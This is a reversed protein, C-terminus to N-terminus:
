RNVMFKGSIGFGSSNIKVMYFGNGLASTNLSIQQDGGNLQRTQSIVIKGTIDTVVVNVNGARLTAFAISVQNSAHNPFLEMDGGGFVDEVSTNTSCTLTPLLKANSFKAGSLLPSGAQPLPNPSTLTYSGLKADALLSYATNSNDANVFWTAPDFAPISARTGVTDFQKKNYVMINNRFYSTSDLLRALTKSNDVYLGVPWGIIASNFINQRSNRRLHQGRKFNANLSGSNSLDANGGPGIVTMNSFVASTYPKNESGTGDNDSEFGNSGSKDAIAPDRLSFGFQVRGSYGFDTDFDDDWGRFAILHDCDVSGGFWEYSDDGSYSVQVYSIKTGAGVGGLTLGNIENDPQFAIGPFEIRVYQLSGSNDMSDTGGYAGDQNANNIGGEITASGGTPNVRAKGLMVIGGWDGYDRTGADQNSTFVIPEAATGNAVLKSGKTIILTGKTAKDGRLVTGAPITLTAGNKVYVFGSILYVKSKDLTTNTTIDGSLTNTTAGYVANNPDWNAWGSTWNDTGNFAGVYDTKCFFASQSM